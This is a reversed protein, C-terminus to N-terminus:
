VARLKECLRAGVETPIRGARRDTIFGTTPDVSCFNGRAALDGDRLDFGIGLAELVGRGIDFKLPNYGFLSLHGPGSGPTIGPGVATSLGCISSAALADMNPTDAAELETQGDPTRPLGGLGDIVLMLIKSTGDIALARVLELDNM